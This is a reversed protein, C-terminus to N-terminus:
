EDDANTFVLQQNKIFIYRVTSFCVITTYYSV